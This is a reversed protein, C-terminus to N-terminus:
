RCGSGPTFSRQSPLLAVVRAPNNAALQALRTAIDGFLKNNMEIGRLGSRLVNLRGKRPTQQIPWPRVVVLRTLNTRYPADAHRRAGEQEVPSVPHSQRVVGKAISASATFDQPDSREGM